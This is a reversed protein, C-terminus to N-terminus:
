ERLHILVTRKSYTYDDSQSPEIIKCKIPASKELFYLIENLTETTFTASYEYDYLESGELYIDVNFHRSLRKVIEAMKTRRFIMKGDKWSTKVALNGDKIELRNSEKDFIAQQGKLLIESGSSEPLSVEINGSALTAEITSDEDYASVNFETGYASVVIGNETLVEFRNSPNAKVKFYAEGSLFVKRTETSFSQPYSITSGSNLWVDSGDPLTVKSVLGYASTLELQGLPINERDKLINYMIFTTIMVPLLLIAATNRIFRWLNNKYKYLTIRRSIEKWNRSVNIQKHLALESAKKWVFRIESVEKRLAASNNLMQEFHKKEEASLRGELYDIILRTQAEM